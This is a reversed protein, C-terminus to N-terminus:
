VSEHFKILSIFDSVNTFFYFLQGIHGAVVKPEWGMLVVNSSQSSVIIHNHNHECVINM